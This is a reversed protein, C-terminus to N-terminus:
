FQEELAKKIKQCALHYSAKLAGVSTNMIQSIEEYKLEQFYRLSFVARQKDPLKLIERRIAIQLRDGDFSPDAKLRNELATTYNGLLLFKAVRRKKLFTLAENTAIRYLWTYLNSEERFTPLGKWVRIFTSQLLDDADEHTCVLERIHWYLRESYERVILNFAFEEKGEQRYLELIQKEDAM